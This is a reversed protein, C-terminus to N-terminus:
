QDCADGTLDSDQDAQDPNSVSPCNDDVDSIGDQDIDEEILKTGSVIQSAEPDELSEDGSCGYLGALVIFLFLGIAKM